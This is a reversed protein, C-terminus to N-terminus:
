FFSLSSLEQEAHVTKQKNRVQSSTQAETSAARPVQAETDAKLGGVQRGKRQINDPLQDKKQRTERESETSTTNQGLSFVAM